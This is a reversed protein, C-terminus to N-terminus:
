ALPIEITVRLGPLANEARIQGHHLSVSRSAISLGLGMGGTDTHRASDVRFFPLFIKSLAEEPVGPGYDRVSVRAVSEDAALAIEVASGQPAYRIANMVVNELARRLLERDGCVCAEGRPQYQIRCDRSDSEFWCDSVVEEVVEDLPLPEMNSSAPEGESRTVQLLAGVLDSLRRIEKRLIEQAEARDEGTCALEAAFSLRALPTRLEHSVDQLLRREATLLTAIREAMRDFARGLEGIEDKRRSTARAALDGAGFREVTRTLAVLPRAIQSALLWCLVAVAALILLYYPVYRWFELPPDVLSVYFYRGDSTHVADVIHGRYRPPFGARSAALIASRDEGTLLDRGDSALLFHSGPLQGDIRTMATRLAPAGGSEHADVAFSMLSIEFREFPGGRGTNRMSVFISVGLFAVLSLVLTGLSWALVKAYVSRM